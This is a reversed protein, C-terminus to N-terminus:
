SFRPEYTFPGAGNSPKTKSITIKEIAVVIATLHRFFYFSSQRAEASTLPVPVLREQRGGPFPTTSGSCTARQGGARQGASLRHQLHCTVHTCDPTEILERHEGSVRIIVPM